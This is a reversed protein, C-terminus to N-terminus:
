QKIIELLEVDFILTTGPKIQEGPPHDGYALDAPIFLRWKSGVPMLQLAETWGRIVGGVTFDVPRGNKISSEFVTGDILSGEYHCRVKDTPGPKPGNGEKLVVYQLGSPLTVVGPKSKNAALFAEGAKRNGASKEETMKQMFAMIITNAQQENLLTKDTKLADNIGKSCVSINLNTMGQQKYFSGASMGLAYSLSDNATKLVPQKSVASAVKKKVQAAAFLNVMVLISVLVKKM